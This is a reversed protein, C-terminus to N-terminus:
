WKKRDKVIYDAVADKIVYRLSQIMMEEVQLLWKEVMGRAKAPYIKNIFTVVENEASIMASIEQQDNFELKSIGEFCKKLHPQVRLPDKTEPTFCVPYKINLLFVRVAM